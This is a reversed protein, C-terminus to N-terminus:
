DTPYAGFCTQLSSALTKMVPFDPNSCRNRPFDTSAIATSLPDASGSSSHLYLYGESKQDATRVAARFRVEKGQFRRPDLNQVAWAFPGGNDDDATGTATTSAKNIRISHYPQGGSHLGPGEHQWAVPKLGSTDPPHLLEPFDSPAEGTRYVRVTPAIPDFLAQLDSRLESRSTADKVKRVGHIAFKEWNTEAAAESPHFYRAYGYLKAFAWLNEVTKETSPGTLWNPDGLYLYSLPILAFISLFLLLRLNLKM